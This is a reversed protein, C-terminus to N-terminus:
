EAAEGGQADLLADVESYLVVQQSKWWDEAAVAAQAALALIDPVQSNLREALEEANMGRRLLFSAMKAGSHVLQVAEADSIGRRAPGMSDIFLEIIQGRADFNVMIRWDVRRWQCKVAIGQRRNPLEMMAATM